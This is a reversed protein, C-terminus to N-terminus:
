DNGDDESIGFWGLLQGALGNLGSVLALRCQAYIFVAWGAVLWRAAKLNQKM